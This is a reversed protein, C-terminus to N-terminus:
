SNRSWIANLRTFRNLRTPGTIDSGNGGTM